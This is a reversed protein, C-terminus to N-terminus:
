YNTGCLAEDHNVKRMRSTDFHKEIKQYAEKLHHEELHPSSAAIWANTVSKEGELNKTCEFGIGYHEDYHLFNFLM